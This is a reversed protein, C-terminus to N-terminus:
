KRTPPTRGATASTRAAGLPPVASTRRCWPSRTACARRRDAARYGPRRDPDRGAQVDRLRQLLALATSKGSGSRGVLGVRTGAEIQLNFDDCCRALRGPYAIASTPPVGGRRAARECRQAREDADRMSTRCCCPRSRRRLRPRRAPRHRGAGGGPRAHRAPHHLRAHTVLVVDGTSARAAAALAPDGLRAPRRDAARHDRCPVAAAERPLAPQPRARRCRASSAAPRLARARALHRRLRAGAAHQQHRRGTRWGGRRGRQCLRPAAAAGRAALVSWGFALLASLVVLVLAMLPSSPRSCAISVPSRWAAAAARELRLHERGHYIANATATIRGALMGPLRDAFYAPAHGTLHQFLDRRMDGTVRSSATRDRGLRRRALVHQGGRDPRRAPRVGDLGRGHRAGTLVDVLHKVRTNRASRRM